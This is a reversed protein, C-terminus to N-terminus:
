RIHGLAAIMPTSETYHDEHQQMLSDVPKNQTLPTGISTHNYVQYVQKIDLGVSLQSYINNHFVQTEQCTTRNVAVYPLESDTKLQSLHKTVLLM